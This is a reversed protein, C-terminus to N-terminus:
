VLGGAMGSKQVHRVAREGDDEALAGSEREPAVLKQVDDLEQEFGQREHHREPRDREHDLPAEARM